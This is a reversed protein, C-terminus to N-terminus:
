FWFRVGVVGQVDGASQGANKRFRATQAFTQRWSVGAYPAFERTFEYRLRFGLELDNFGAGVGFEEVSQLAVNVELLPQAIMRQTVFIDRTARVRASVDGEISLFLFPELEFWYPALGELGIVFFGRGLGPTDAEVMLDARFGVQFEWYPAILHSYLLQAEGELELNATTLDGESKFWIRDWDGGVWSTVDWTLPNSEGNFGYELQEFLYMQHIKGRSGSAAVPVSVWVSLALIALAIRKM